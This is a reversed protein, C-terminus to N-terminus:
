ESEPYKATHVLLELGTPEKGLGIAALESARMRVGGAELEAARGVVDADVGPRHKTFLQEFTETLAKVNENFTETGIGAQGAKMELALLDKWLNLLLERTQWNAPTTLLTIGAKIDVTDKAFDRMAARLGDHTETHQPMNFKFVLADLVAPGLFYAFLKWLCDYEREALGTQVARGIITHVILSPSELRDIVDFFIREYAEVTEPPIGMKAEIDAFSEKALLRAELEWRHETPDDSADYLSYAEYVAPYADLVGLRDLDDDCRDLLRRFKSAFKVTEDDRGRVSRAGEALECARQWRWDGPRRKNDPRNVLISM